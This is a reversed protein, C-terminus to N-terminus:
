QKSMPDLDTLESSSGIVSFATNYPHYKEKQKPPPAARSIASVSM